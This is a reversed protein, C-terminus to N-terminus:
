DLVCRGHRNRHHLRGCGDKVQHVQDTHQSAQGIAVANIPTASAGSALFGISAAVVLAALIPRM